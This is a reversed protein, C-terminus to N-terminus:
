LAEEKGTIIAVVTWIAVIGWGIFTLIIGIESNFHSSCAHIGSTPVGNFTSGPLSACTEVPDAFGAILGVIPSTLLAVLQAM